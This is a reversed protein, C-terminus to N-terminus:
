AYTLQVSIMNEMLATIVSAAAIRILKTLNKTVNM